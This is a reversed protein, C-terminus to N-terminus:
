GVGTGPAVQGFAAALEQGMGGQGSPGEGPPAPQQVAPVQVLQEANHIDYTEALDVMFRQLFPHIQGGPASPFLQGIIQIAELAEKRKFLKTEPETEGVDIKVDLDLNSGGNLIEPSVTLPELDASIAPLQRQATMEVENIRM